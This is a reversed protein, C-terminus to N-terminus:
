GPENRIGIRQHDTASGSTILPACHAKSPGALFLFLCAIPLFAISKRRRSPRKMCIDM